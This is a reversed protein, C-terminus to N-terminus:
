IGTGTEADGGDHRLGVELLPTLTGGATEFARSADLVLRLRTVNTDSAAPNSVADSETRV